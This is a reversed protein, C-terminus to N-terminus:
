TINPINSSIFRFHFEHIRKKRKASEFSLSRLVTPIVTYTFFKLKVTKHFYYQDCIVGEARVYVKCVGVYGGVSHFWMSTCVGAHRKNIFM